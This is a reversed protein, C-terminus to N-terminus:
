RTLVLKSRFERGGVSLVAIYVGPPMARGDDSRGDWTYRYYGPEFADQIASRIPRGDLSYILLRVPRRGEPADDALVSPRSSAISTSQGGRRLTAGAESSRPLGWELVRVGERRVRDRASLGPSTSDPATELRMLGLSNAQRPALSQRLFARSPAAVPEHARIMLCTPGLPNSSAIGVYTTDSATQGDSGAVLRLSFGYCSADSGTYTSSNGAWEELSNGDQMQRYWIYTYGGSGGSVVASWTYQTGSNISLPGDISAVLSTTPASFQFPISITSTPVPDEYSYPPWTTIGFSYSGYGVVAGADNKGNWYLHRRGPAGGAIPFTKVVVGAANRVVVQYQTAGTLTWSLAADKGGSPQPISVTAEHSEAGLRTLQIGTVDTWAETVWAYPLHRTWATGDNFWPEVSQVVGVDTPRRYDGTSWDGSSTMTKLLVLTESFKALSNRGRDAVLVDGNGDISIGVYESTLSPDAAFAIPAKSTSPANLMSEYKWRVIRHNKSDSIYIDSGAWESGVGRGWTRVDLGQPFQLQSPGTGNSGFQDVYSASFVGFMDHLRYVVVRGNGSDLIFLRDDDPSWTMAHDWAVDYPERFRLGSESGDIAGVWLIARTVHNVRVVVVRHNGADAIFVTHWDGVRQSIDVGRPNNLNSVESGFKGWSITFKDAVGWVIRNLLPDTTISVSEQCEKQTTTSRTCHAASGWIAGFMAVDLKAIAFNRDIREQEISQCRTIGLTSECRRVDIAKVPQFTQAGVHPTTATCLGCLMLVVRAVRAHLITQAM